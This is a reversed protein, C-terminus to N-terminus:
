VHLPLTARSTTRLRLKLTACGPVQRLVVCLFNTRATVAGTGTGTGAGTGTSECVNFIGIHQEGHEGKSAGRTVGAGAAGRSPSHWTAGQPDRPGSGPAKESLRPSGRARLASAPGVFQPARPGSGPARSASAVRSSAGGSASCAGSARTSPSRTPTGACRARALASWPGPVPGDGTPPSRATPAWASADGDVSPVPHAHTGRRVERSPADVAFATSRSLGM